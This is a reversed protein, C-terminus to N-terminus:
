IVDLFDTIMIRGIDKLILKQKMLQSPLPVDKTGILLIIANQLAKSLNLNLDTVAPLLRGLIKMGVSVANFKRKVLDKRICEMLTSDISDFRSLDHNGWTLLERVKASVPDPRGDSPYCTLVRTYADYEKSCLCHCCGLMHTSFAFNQPNRDNKAYKQM